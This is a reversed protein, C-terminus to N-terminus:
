DPSPETVDEPRIAGSDDPTAGLSGAQCNEPTVYSDGHYLETLGQDEFIAQCGTEHGLEYGESVPDEPVDPSVDADAVDPELTTCDVESYEYDGEYLFGDPSASFLDSCGDAYGDSFGAAFANWDDGEQNDWDAQRCDLTLIVEPARARCRGDRGPGRRHLGGPGV